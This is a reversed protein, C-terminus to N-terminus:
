NKELDKAVSIKEEDTLDNYSEIRRLINLDKPLLKTIILTYYSDQKNKAWKAFEVPDFPALLAAKLDATIKNLCGKPKGAPNGSQGPKFAQPRKNAM